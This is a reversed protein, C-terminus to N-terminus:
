LNDKEGQEKKIRTSRLWLGIIVFLITTIIGYLPNLWIDANDSFVMVGGNEMNNILVNPFSDQMAHMFVGPWVSGTIRYLEVFIVAWCTMIIISSWTYDVRSVTEFVADPMLVLYYAAHWLAWVVGVILYILWDNMKLEMLKPTLYGRWSFEEFINIIIAPLFSALVVSLFIGSDFDVFEAMDFLWASGSVLITVVPFVVAGLIYWKLNGKLRPKIRFDAWDRTISRLIIVTLLPAGIMITMGPTEGTSAENLLSDILVGVWGCALAVFIFIALPLKHTKRLDNM